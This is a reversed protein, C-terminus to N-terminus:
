AQEPYGLINLGGALAEACSLKFVKGYNVPNAAVMYPLLRRQNNNYRENDFSIHKHTEEIRNWSCDIVCLGHKRVIDLDERSIVSKGSASLVVGRYKKKGSAVPKILKFKLLKRGTCRKSDCQNFDIM